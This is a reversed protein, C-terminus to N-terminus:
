PVPVQESDREKVLAMIEEPSLYYKQLRDRYRLSLNARDLIFKKTKLLYEEMGHAVAYSDAAREAEIIYNNSFLYKLGFIILAFNNRNKYDVIHGLEHGLWGILIDSPMAMTLFEKDTLKFRESILVVYKRKRKSKFFSWFIPRAQMTSKKINKKFKFTIQTSDLTPYFSLALVAEKEMAKPMIHQANLNYIM